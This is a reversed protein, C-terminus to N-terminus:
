TTFYLYLLGAGLGLNMIGIIVLALLMKRNLKKAALVEKKVNGISEETLANAKTLEGRLETLESQLQTINESLANYHNMLATQTQDLHEKFAKKQEQQQQEFRMLGERFAVRMMELHNAYDEVQKRNQGEIRSMVQEINQRYRAFMSNMADNINSAVKRMADDARKVMDDLKTRMDAVGAVAVETVASCVKDTLLEIKANNAIIAKGCDLLCEQIKRIDDTMEDTPETAQPMVQSM